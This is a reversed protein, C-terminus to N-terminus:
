DHRCGSVGDPDLADIRKVWVRFRGSDLEGVLWLERYRLERELGTWALDADDYRRHGPGTEAHKARALAARRRVDNLSLGRFVEVDEAPPDADRRRPLEERSRFFVHVCISGWHPRRRVSDAAATRGDDVM